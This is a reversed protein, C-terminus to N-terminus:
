EPNKAKFGTECSAQDDRVTIRATLKPHTCYKGKKLACEGCTRSLQEAAQKEFEGTMVPHQTPTDDKTSVTGELATYHTERKKKHLGADAYLNAHIFHPDLKDEIRKWVQKYSGIKLLKQGDPMTQYDAIRLKAYNVMHSIYEEAILWKQQRGGITRTVSHNMFSARSPLVNRRFRFLNLSWELGRFRDILCRFPHKVEGTSRKLQKDTHKDVFQVSDMQNDVYDAAWVLGPLRKACMKMLDYSPEADMVLIKCGWLNFVRAIEDAAEEGSMEIIGIYDTRHDGNSLRTKIIYHKEPARQDLGMSRWMGDDGLPVIPTEWHTHPDMCEELVGRTVPVMNGDMFPLGLISNYFEPVNHGREWAPMIIGNLYDEGKLLQSFHYGRWNSDPNMHRYFGDQADHIHAGCRPCCLYWRGSSGRRVVRAPNEAFELPLIIGIRSHPCGLEPCRTSWYGQTSELFWRHIDSNPLGATSNLEILGREGTIPNRLVSESVRIFVRDIKDLQMLRVEDFLLADAPFSDMSIGSRTGRFRMNSIGIRVLDVRNVVDSKKGDGRVLKQLKPSSNLMPRFRSASLDEVADRSPFILATNLATRADACLWLARNLMRITLGMQAAKMIVVRQWMRERTESYLEILHRYENLNFARAGEPKVGSATVFAQINALEEAEFAPDPPLFESEILDLYDASFGDFFGDSLDDDLSWM